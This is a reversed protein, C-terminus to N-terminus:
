MLEIYPGLTFKEPNHEYQEKKSSLDVVKEKDYLVVFNPPIRNMEMITDLYFKDFHQGLVISIAQASRSLFECRARKPLNILYNNIFM